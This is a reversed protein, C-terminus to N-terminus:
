PSDIMWLETSRFEIRNDLGNIVCGKEEMHLHYETVVNM